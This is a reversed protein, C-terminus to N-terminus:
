ASGTTLPPLTFEVLINSGYEAARLDIVRSPIELTPPKPEGPYGCGAMLATWAVAVSASALKV